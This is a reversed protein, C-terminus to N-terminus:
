RYDPVLFRPETSVCDSDAEGRNPDVIVVVHLPRKWEITLVLEKLSFQALEAEEIVIADELAAEFEGLTCDM